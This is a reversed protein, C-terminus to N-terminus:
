ADAVKRLGSLSNQWDKTSWDAGRRAGTRPGHYPKTLFVGLYPQVPPLVSKRRELHDLLEAATWEAYNKNKPENVAASRISTPAHISLSAGNAILPNAGNIRSVLEALLATFHDVIQLHLSTKADARSIMFDFDSQPAEGDVDMRDELVQSTPEELQSVVESNEVYVKRHDAFKELDVSGDWDIYKAIDRSSVRKNKPVPITIVHESETMMCLNNDNSYLYTQGIRNFYIACNLIHDDPIEPPRHTDTEHRAQGKVVKRERSKNLLWSSAHRAFWSRKKIGDLERTVINPVIVVVPVAQYEVDDVFQILSDLFELVINTDIVVFITRESFPAKMEVDDNAIEEFRKLAAHYFIDPNGSSESESQARSM